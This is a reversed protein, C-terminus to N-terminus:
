WPMSVEGDDTMCAGDVVPYDFTPNQTDAWASCPPIQAQGNSVANASMGSGILAASMLAIFLWYKPHSRFESRFM